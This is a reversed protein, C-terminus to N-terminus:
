KEEDLKLMPRPRAAFIEGGPKIKSGGSRAGISFREPNGSVDLEIGSRREPSSRGPADPQPASHPRLRPRGSADRARGLEIAGARYVRM